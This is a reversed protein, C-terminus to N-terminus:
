SQNKTTSLAVGTLHELAPLEIVLPSREEM